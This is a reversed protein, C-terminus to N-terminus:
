RVAGRHRAIREHGFLNTTDPEPLRPLNNEISKDWRHFAIYNSLWAPMWRVNHRFEEKDLRNFLAVGEQYAALDVSWRGLNWLLRAAQGAKTEALQMKRKATQKLQITRDGIRFQSSRGDIYFLTEEEKKRAENSYPDVLPKPMQVIRRGFAEAKAKAIDFNSYRRKGTSDKVFVGRALRFIIGANVCRTLARDVAGRLGLTLCDRTTFIKGEPWFAVFRRIMHIAMRREGKKAKEGM